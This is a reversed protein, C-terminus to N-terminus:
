PNRDRVREYDAWARAGTTVGGNNLDAIWDGCDSCVPTPPEQGSDGTLDLHIAPNIGCATCRV